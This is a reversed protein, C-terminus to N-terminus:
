ADQLGNEYEVYMHSCNLSFYMNGLEVNSSFLILKQVTEQKSMKKLSNLKKDLTALTRM